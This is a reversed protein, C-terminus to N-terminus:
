NNINSSNKARAKNSATFTKNREKANAIANEPSSFNEKQELHLIDEDQFNHNFM